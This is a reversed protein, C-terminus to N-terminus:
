TAAGGRPCNVFSILAVGSYVNTQTARLAVAVSSAGITRRYSSRRAFRGHLM